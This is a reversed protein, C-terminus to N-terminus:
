GERMIHEFFPDRRLERDQFVVIDEMALGRQLLYDKQWQYTFYSFAPEIVRFVAALVGSSFGKVAAVLWYILITVECLQRDPITTGSKPHPSSVSESSLAPTWWSSTSSRKLDFWWSFLIKPKFYILIQNGNSHSNRLQLSTKIKQNCFRDNM